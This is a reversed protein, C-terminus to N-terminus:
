LRGHAWGSPSAPASSILPRERLTMAESRVLTPVSDARRLQRTSQRLAEARQLVVVERGRDGPGVASLLRRRHIERLLDKTGQVNDLAKDPEEPASGVERRRTAATLIEAAHRRDLSLLQSSRSVPSRDCVQLQQDDEALRAAGQGQGYLALERPQQSEHRLIPSAAGARVFASSSSARSGHPRQRWGGSKDMGRRRCQPRLADCGPLAVEM